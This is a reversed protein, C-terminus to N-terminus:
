GSICNTVTVASRNVACNDPSHSKNVQKVYIRPCIFVEAATCAPGALSAPAPCRAELCAAGFMSMRRRRCRQFTNNKFREINKKNKITNINEKNSQCLKHSSM